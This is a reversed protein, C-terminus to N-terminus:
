RRFSSIFNNEWSGKTISFSHEFNLRVSLTEYILKISRPSRVSTDSLEKGILSRLKSFAEREDEIGNLRDKQVGYYQIKSFASIDQNLSMLRDRIVTEPSPTSHDQAQPLVNTYRTEHFLIVSPGLSETCGLKRLEGSFHENYAKSADGLFYLVDTHIREARYSIWLHILHNLMKSSHGFFNGQKTYSLTLYQLYKSCSVLAVTRM